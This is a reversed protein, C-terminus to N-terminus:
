TGVYIDIGLWFKFLHFDFMEVVVCNNDDTAFVFVSSPSAKLRDAPRASTPPLAALVLDWTSAARGRIDALGASAKVLLQIYM